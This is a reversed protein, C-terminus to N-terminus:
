CGAASVWSINFGAEVDPSPVPITASALPILMGMPALALRAKASSWAQVLNM